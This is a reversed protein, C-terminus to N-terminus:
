DGREYTDLDGYYSSPSNSGGSLVGGCMAVLMLLMVLGMVQKV